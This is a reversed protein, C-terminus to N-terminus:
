LVGDVAKLMGIILEREAVKVAVRTANQPAANVAGGTELIGFSGQSRGLNPGVEGGIEGDTNLDLDYDISTPYKRAHRGSPGRAAKTWADDTARLAVEVGKRVNPITERPIAGLEAEFALIDSFDMDGAM